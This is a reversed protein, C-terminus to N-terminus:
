APEKPDSVSKRTAFELGHERRLLRALEARLNNNILVSSSCRQLGLLGAFHPRRLINVYLDICPRAGNAVDRLALYVLFDWADPNKKRWTIAGLLQEDDFALQGDPTM